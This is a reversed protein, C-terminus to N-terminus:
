LWIIGLFESIFNIICDGFLFGIISFVIIGILFLKLNHNM